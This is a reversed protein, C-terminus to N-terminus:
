GMPDVELDLEKRQNSLNHGIRHSRRIRRSLVDKAHFGDYERERLTMQQNLIADLNNRVTRESIWAGLGENLESGVPM